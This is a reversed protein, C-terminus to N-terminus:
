RARGEKLMTISADLRKARTEATKATSVQLTHWQRKSYSLSDFFAKAEPEAALATALEDPIELERVATDLELEVDYTEGPTLGSEARRENSVGFLYRGGMRAISTRFAYGDITVSVKPRGGGGLEDVLSEPVEFGATTKGTSLLEATFRM